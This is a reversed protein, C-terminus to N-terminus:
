RVILGPKHIKPVINAYVYFPGRLGWLDGYAVFKGRGHPPTGAPIRILITTVEHDNGTGWCAGCHVLRGTWECPECGAGLCLGCTQRNNWLRGTGRCSPCRRRRSITVTKDAGNQIDWGTVEVEVSVKAVPYNPPPPPPASKDRDYKTRKDSDSLVDYAESIDKFKREAEKNGPNRDPHLKVAHQRYARRIEELTATKKVGLVAYLDM